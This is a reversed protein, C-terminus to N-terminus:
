LEWVSGMYSFKDWIKPLKVSLHNTHFPINNTHTHPIDPCGVFHGGDQIETFNNYQAINSLYITPTFPFTTPMTTLYITTVLLIAAMKSKLLITINLSTQCIPPQHLLSLQQYQHSTYRPM